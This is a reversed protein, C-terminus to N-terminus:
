THMTCTEPLACLSTERTFRRTCLSKGTVNMDLLFNQSLHKLARVKMARLLQSVTPLPTEMQKKSQM